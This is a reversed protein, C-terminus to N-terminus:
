GFLLQPQEPLVVWEVINSLNITFGRKRLAEADASSLRMKSGHSASGDFNVVGLETDKRGFVHAHKQGVGHTPGDIRINRDFRGNVWKGEDLREISGDITQVIVEDLVELGAFEKFRM